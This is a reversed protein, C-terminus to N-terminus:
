YRAEGATIGYYLLDKYVGEAEKIVERARGEFTFGNKELVRMSAGNEEHVSACIKHLGITCFLYRMATKLAESAIGQNWYDSGINYGIECSEGNKDLNYVGISGVLSGDMTVAWGFFSQDKKYQELHIDIYDITGAMTECPKFTIYRNVKADKGIAHLAKADTKKYRRLELRESKLPVTGFFKM